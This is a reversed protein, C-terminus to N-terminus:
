ILRATFIAGFVAMVADGLTPRLAEQAAIAAELQTIQANIDSM